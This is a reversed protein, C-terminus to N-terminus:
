GLKLDKGTRNEVFGDREFEGELKLFIGFIGGVEGDFWFGGELDEGGWSGM